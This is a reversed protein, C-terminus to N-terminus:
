MSSNRQTNNVATSERVKKDDGRTTRGSGLDEHSERTVTYEQQSLCDCVCVTVCVNM